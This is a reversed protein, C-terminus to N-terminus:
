ITPQQMCHGISNIIGCRAIIKWIPEFRSKVNNFNNQIKEKACDMEEYLFPMAPQEDSNVLQLVKILLLTARLCTVVNSWIKNDLAIKQVKKGKESRAHTNGKWSSSSFMTILSGKHEILCGLISYATAFRTFAPRILDRGKTYNKMSSILSPRNYIFTTIKRGKRITVRHTQLKKEFDELILDICHAACPTWFLNKKKEMLLSGAAKYSATTDAIVQVVNEEGVKDVIKDLMEFVKEADSMITYGIKSWEDKNFDLFNDIKKVEETLFTERIEHYSPRKFGPGHRAIDECAREFEPNRITNFPIGSTYFWKTIRKYASKRLDKKLLQNMTTQYSGAKEKGKSAHDM